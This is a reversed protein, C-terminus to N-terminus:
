DLTELFMYDPPIEYKRGRKEGTAKLNLGQLLKYATDKHQIGTWDRFQENTMYKGILIRYDRIAFKLAKRNNKHCSICRWTRSEFRMLSKFQCHPCLVGKQISEAPVYRNTEHIITQSELYQKIRQLDALNAVIAHQASLDKLKFALSSLNIIPLGRLSSDLTANQNANIVLPIIPIHVDARRLFYYLFEHHRSIQDFPNTTFTELTNDYKLRSFQRLSADYYLTGSINKVEILLIFRPTLVLFDIQHSYDAENAFQLNSCLVYDAGRLCDYISREVREEGSIGALAQNIRTQFKDLEDNSGTYRRLLAEHYLHYFSKLQTTM